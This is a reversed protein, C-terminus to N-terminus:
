QLNPLGSGEDHLHRSWYRHVIFFIFIMKNLCIEGIRFNFLKLRMWGLPRALEHKIIFVIKEFILLISVFVIDLHDLTKQLDRSVLRNSILSCFDIALFFFIPYNEFWMTLFDDSYFWFKSHYFFCFVPIVSHLFSKSYYNVRLTLQVLYPSLFSALNSIIKNLATLICVLSLESFFIKSIFCMQIYFVFCMKSIFYQLLFKFLIISVYFLKFLIICSFFNCFSPLWNTITM